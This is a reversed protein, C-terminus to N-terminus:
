PTHGGRSVVMSQLDRTFPPGSTEHWRQEKIKTLKGSQNEHILPWTTDCMPLMDQLTWELRYKM